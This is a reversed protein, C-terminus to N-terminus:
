SLRKRKLLYYLIDILYSKTKTIIYFRRKTGGFETFLQEIEAPMSGELDLTSILTKLRCIKEWFVLSMPYTTELNHDIGGLLYYAKDQDLIIYSAALIQNKQDVCFYIKRLNRKRLEQDLQKLNELSYPPKIGKRIFAHSSLEYLKEIDDSEIVQYGQEKAKKIEWRRKSSLNAFLDKEELSLDILHTYYSTQRFNQLFLPQWNMFEPLFNQRFYHFSPLKEVLQKMVKRQFSYRKVSKKIDSPLLLHIGLFPTLVPHKSIQFGFAKKRYFPWVGRIENAKDIFLVVDWNDPGCVVDLWWDYFFIPLTKSTQCFVRYIQKETM